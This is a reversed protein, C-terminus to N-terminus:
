ARPGRHDLCTLSGLEALVPEVEGACVICRLPEAAQGGGEYMRRKADRHERQTV